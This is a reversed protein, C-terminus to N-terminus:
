AEVGSMPTLTAEATRIVEDAEAALLAKDKVDARLLAGIDRDLARALREEVVSRFTRLRARALRAGVAEAVRTLVLGVLVSGVMLIVPWPWEGRVLPMAWLWIAGAVFAGALLWKFVGILRLWGPMSDVDPAPQDDLASDVVRRIVQESRTRALRDRLRLGHKGGLDSAVDGVFRELMAYVGELGTRGDWRATASELATQPKEFGLIRGLASGKLTLAMAGMPGTALRLASAEGSRVAVGRVEPGAILDALGEVTRERVSEWRSDFDISEYDSVGAAEALAMAARRADTVLKGIVSQKVVLRDDLVEILADVGFAPQDPPDAATAVIVPDSIGDLRLRDAFDALVSRREEPPIRDIQNFAFIFNGAYESLPVLYEQHLLRDNYKEPDVVWVVADVRPLLEEFLQRHAGVVSDTDPMDLITLLPLEDHEVTDVVGMDELLRPIGPDPRSPVWALATSTTPRIPGSVTVQQGAIANLLSSKGSGTGGALAVVFGDGLFGLRRRANRVLRAPGELEDPDVVEAAHAVLRDLDDLM